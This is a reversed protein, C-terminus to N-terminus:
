HDDVVAFAQRLSNLSDESDVIEMDRHCIYRAVQANIRCASRPSSALGAVLSETRCFTPLFLYSHQCPFIVFCDHEVGCADPRGNGESDLLMAQRGCIQFLESACCSCTRTNTSMLRARDSEAHEELPEAILILAPFQMLRNPLCPLTDM